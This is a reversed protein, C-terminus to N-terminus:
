AAAALQRQPRVAAIETIREAETVAAAAENAILCTQELALHISYGNDSGSVTVLWGTALRGVFETADSRVKEDVELVRAHREGNVEVIYPFRWAERGGLSSEVPEFWQPSYIGETQLYHEHHAPM